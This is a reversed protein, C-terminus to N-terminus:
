GKFAAIKITTYVGGDRMVAKLECSEQKKGSFLLHM